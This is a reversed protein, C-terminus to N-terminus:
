CGIDFDAVGLHEYIFEAGKHGQAIAEELWYGADNDDSRVMDGDLYYNAVRFQAEASGKKAASYTLAFKLKEQAADMNTVELKDVIAMIKEASLKETSTHSPFTSASTYMAIKQEDFVENASATTISGALISSGILLSHSVHNFTNKM